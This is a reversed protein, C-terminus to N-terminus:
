PAWGARSGSEMPSGVMTVPASATSTAHEVEEAVVELAAADVHAEQAGGLDVAEAVDVRRDDPVVRRGLVRRGPDPPAQSIAMLARWTKTTMRWDARDNTSRMSKRVEGPLRPPLASAASRQAPRLAPQAPSGGHDDGVQADVVEVVVALHAEVAEM